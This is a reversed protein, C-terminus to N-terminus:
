RARGDDLAGATNEIRLSDEITYMGPARGVLWTAARLAGRAFLDRNTAQHFIKIREGPGAFEVSHDGIVDGARLAHIREDPLHAGAERLTKALRLATGSPADRKQNHHTDVIDIDFDCGLLRHAEAILHNVVAVGLSTNPAVMVPISEACFGLKKLTEQSLGTSGVLLAARSSRAYECAEQAGADSTFDIVVDCAIPADGHASRANAADIRAAIVFREDREALECIRTGMRGSAGHVLLRIM